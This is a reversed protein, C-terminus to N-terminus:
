SVIAKKAMETAVVVYVYSTCGEIDVVDSIIIGCGCGEVVEYFLLFNCLATVIGDIAICFFCRLERM